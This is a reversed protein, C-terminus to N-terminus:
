IYQPTDDTSLKTFRKMSSGDKDIDSIFMEYPRVFLVERAEDDQFTYSRAKYLVLWENTETHLVVDLVEYTDGKYHRYIGNELYPKKM